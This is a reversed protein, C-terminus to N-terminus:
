IQWLFFFQVQLVLSCWSIFACSHMSLMQLVPISMSLVGSWHFIDDHLCPPRSLWLPSHFADGLSFGSLLRRECQRLEIKHKSQCSCTIEVGSKGSRRRRALKEEPRSRRSGMVLSLLGGFTLILSGGDPSLTSRGIRFFGRRGVGDVYVQRSKKDASRRAAFIM